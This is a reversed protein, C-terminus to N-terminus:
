GGIYLTLIERHAHSHTTESTECITKTLLDLEVGVRHAEIEEIVVESATVLTEADLTLISGIRM